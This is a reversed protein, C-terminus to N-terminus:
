PHSFGYVGDVSYYENDYVFYAKNDVSLGLLELLQRQDGEIPYQIKPSWDVTRIADQLVPFLLNVDDKSMEVIPSKKDIDESVRNVTMWFPKEPLSVTIKISNSQFPIAMFQFDSSLIFNETEIKKDDIKVVFERWYDPNANMVNNPINVGFVGDTKPKILFTISEIANTNDFQPVIKELIGGDIEYRIHFDTDNVNLTKIRYGWERLVLSSATSEKVCAPSKDNKIVLKLDINCNITIFSHTTPHAMQYRPPDFEGIYKGHERPVEGQFYYYRWVNWNSDTYFKSNYDLWLNLEGTKVIAFLENRKENMWKEGKYKYYNDLDKKEQEIGPNCGPCGYCPADPWDPDQICMGQAPQSSFFITFGIIGIVTLILFRTKM